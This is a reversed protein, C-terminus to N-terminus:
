LGTLMIVYRRKITLNLEIKSIDEVIGIINLVLYSYAYNVGLIM